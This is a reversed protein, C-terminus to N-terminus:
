NLSESLHRIKMCREDEQKAIKLIKLVIPNIESHNSIFQGIKNVSKNLCFTPALSSSFSDLFTEEKISSLKSLESLFRDLFVVKISDQNHSYFGEMISKLEAFSYGKTNNIIENFWFNKNELNPQAAEAYLSSQKGSSSSDKLLQGLRLPEGLIPDTANITQIMKWKRDTDIKIGPIEIEGDLLSILKEIGESTEAISIYSDFVLLRIQLSISQSLFIKWLNSEIESVLFQRNFKGDKPAYAISMALSNLIKKVTQLTSEKALVQLAWKTYEQLSLNADSTMQWLNSTIMNRMLPDKISFYNNKAFELSTLDLSVKVYDHDEFNPYIFSPCTIEETIPIITESGSYTINKFKSLESQNKKNLNFMGLKTQHTRYISDGNGPNQKIKLSNLKKNECQFEVQVENFGSTQIWDSTWESLPKGAAQELSNMFDASTANQFAFNKFYNQVGKQFADSGIFYSLQKMVSAGKEYTIGDFLTSAELTSNANNEIPHTTILQDEHQAIAKTESFFSLWSQKFPTAQELAHSAMYTAFSENLWLDRWWKMTVLNGFWMHAMEHLIVNARAEQDLYTEKGKSVYFEAFTAAGINEMAESNLDPVILQDYKKFPYEYNFYNSYFSLGQKTTRFWETANVYKSFSKRAFLRLPIKGAQAKWSVYEGAHLSFVYTSFIDSKPFDWITKSDEKTKSSELTSSIVSWGNPAEVKLTYSAKLDPQDFCPFLKNASYPEFDTYLYTRNDEPDKFRYLGAGNKSYAHEYEIEISNKGKVFHIPEMLIFNQNYNIHVAKQGNVQMSLVTGDNFDVTIPESASVLTFEIRVKGTYTPLISDLKIFLQYDIDKLIKSRLEAQAQTLLNENKRDYASEIKSNNQQASSCANLVICLAILIRLLM